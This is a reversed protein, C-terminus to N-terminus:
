TISQMKYKIIKVILNKPLPKNNPFQVSAKGAKDDKLEKEFQQLINTGVYFGAFNKYGAIMIQKDRKGGKVLTYASIDYNIIEETDPFTDQIIAKLGNLTQKTEGSQLDFYEKATKFNAKAM